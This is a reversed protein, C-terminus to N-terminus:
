NVKKMNQKSFFSDDIPQNFVLNTFILVTKEGEKDAPIIEMRSPIDRDGFNKIDYANQTNILYGDEDYYESKWL